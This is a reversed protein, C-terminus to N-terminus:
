RHERVQRVLEDITLGSEGGPVDTRGEIDPMLPEGIAQSFARGKDVDFVGQSHDRVTLRNPAGPLDTRALFLVYESGPVLDPGGVLLITVEGVRGGMVTFTLESPQRGKLGLSTHAHVDTLIFTHEPNWYSHLDLVKAQVITESDAILRDLGQRILTTATAPSVSLTWAVLVLAPPLAFRPVPV